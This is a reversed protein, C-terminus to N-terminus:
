SNEGNYQICNDFVLNVDNLFEDIRKYYNSQLRNKITGFDMPHKIIDFYDPIGLREPDVPELFIWASAHKTLANIMRKAAKDWCEYIPANEPVDPIPLQSLTSEDEFYRALEPSQEKFQNFEEETM